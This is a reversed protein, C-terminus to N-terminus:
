IWENQREKVAISDGLMRIFEQMSRKHYSDRLTHVCGTMESEPVDLPIAKVGRENHITAEALVSVLMSQRILKLLINVENLEIRVRFSDHPSVISDFANRAQLGKSPLALDYQALEPIGVKQRAALPHSTAVIASLHNQFLTHSEVGDIPRTPKFALVFDVTREKLLQMLENMPKYHIDLKIKPYQKMFSQLTETLIPSFSYTVGISLSGASLNNLDRIRQACSESEYIAHRVHPLIAEGAETLAVKHSNRLLLQTDLETELQKIQQSLTSQTVCLSRAAESFNLTEAVKAFYILQRLEMYPLM